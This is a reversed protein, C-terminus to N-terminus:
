KKRKDRLMKMFDKAEQSGKVLKPRKTKLGNGNTEDGEPITPMIRKKSIKKAKLKPNMPKMAVKTSFPKNEEEAKAEEALRKQIDDLISKQEPTQQGSRARRRGSGGCMGKGKKDEASMAKREKRQKVREDRRTDEKRMNKREVEELTKARTKIEPHKNLGLVNEVSAIPVIVSSYNAEALTPAPAIRNQLVRRLNSIEPPLVRQVRQRPAVRSSGLGKGEKANKLANELISILKPTTNNITLASLMDQLKMKEQEEKELDKDTRVYATTYVPLPVYEAPAPEIPFLQNNVFSSDESDLSGNSSFSSRNSYDIDSIDSISDERTSAAAGKGMMKKEGYRKKNSALTQQHKAKKREEETAYKPKRGKKKPEIAVAVVPVPEPEVIVLRKRQHRKPPRPIKIPSIQRNVDEINMTINERAEKKAEENMKKSLVDETAMKFREKAESPPKRKKVAVNVDEAGMLEKEKKTSLKKRNGYKEKYQSKCEPKTMACGYSLNNKSAYEKVFSVWNNPM